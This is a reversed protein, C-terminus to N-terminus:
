EDFSAKIRGWSDAKAATPSDGSGILRGDVFREAYRFTSAQGSLTHFGRYVSPETDFDPVSIQFGIIKNPFLPSPESDGPNDWVLRDFPTVYFEIVTTTPNEGFAAGGADAYPLANVWDQGKGLYGVKKNDPAEAIAVYQQAHSNNILDADEQTIGAEEDPAFQYQGGGHDGDLMLEIADHRWLDGLSGGAYENIYVNDVAEQAYWVHNGTQNWGLWIRFEFDAPDYQAGDGIDPASHFQEASLQADGVVDLWDEISGDRLDIDAIDADPIEFILYVEKGGDNPAPIHASAVGVLAVLLFAMLVFLPKRM